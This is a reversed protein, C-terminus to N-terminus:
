SYRRVRHASLGGVPPRIRAIAEGLDFPPAVRAVKLPCVIGEIV